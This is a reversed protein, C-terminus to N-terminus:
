CQISPQVLKSLSYYILAIWTLNPKLKALYNWPFVNEFRHSSFYAM